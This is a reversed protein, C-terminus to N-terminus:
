PKWLRSASIAGFTEAIQVLGCPTVNSFATIEITIATLVESV